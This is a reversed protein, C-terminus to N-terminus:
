CPLSTLACWIRCSATRNMSIDPLVHTLLSSLDTTVLNVFKCSSVQLGAPSHLEVNKVEFTDLVLDENRGDSVAPWRGQAVHLFGEM